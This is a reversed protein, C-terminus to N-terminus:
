VYHVQMWAMEGHHGFTANATKTAFLTKGSFPIPEELGFEKSGWLCPPVSIFGPEQFPQPLTAEDRNDNTEDLHGYSAQQHCLLQGTQATCDELPTGSECMYLSMSLCTPAHCHFHAAVLRGNQRPIFAGQITHIWQGTNDDQSCGPVGEACQPVDYEVPSAIGWTAFQVQTHYSPEYDQFWFRFKLRYEIPQDPWPIEQEADLLSWMHHCALQGGSYTRVDCTPNRQELLSGRPAPPCQNNWVVSEAPGQEGPQDKVPHYQLTAGKTQGFPPPEQQCVCTGGSSSQSVPLLFASSPEKARHYGFASSSGVASIFAIATMHYPDVDFYPHGVAVRRFHLTRTTDTTSEELVQLTPVNIESGGAHEGLIRESVKTTSGNTTTSSTTTPEIVITWPEDKMAQAGFGIAFWVDIPGTMILDMENSETDVQLSWELPLSTPPSHARFIRTQSSTCDAVTSAATTTTVTGNNSNFFALIVETTTNNDNHSELLSVSCGLPRDLTTGTRNVIGASPRHSLLMSVMDFCDQPTEVAQSGRPCSGPQNWLQFSLPLHKTIRTTVPCELLGSYLPHDIPALSSKPLPGPVFRTRSGDMLSMQDRHWTDIQMPIVQFQQPSRIMQAFGPAYGHFSQRMEGGNAGRFEQSDLPDPSSPTWYPLPKGHGMM